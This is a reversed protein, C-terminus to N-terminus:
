DPRHATPAAAAARTGVAAAPQAPKPLSTMELRVDALSRSIQIVAPTAAPDTALWLDVKGKWRRGESDEVGRIAYHRTDITGAPLTRREPGRPVVDVPYVKEDSWIQLRRTREPPDRRISYIASVVDMVGQQTVEQNESKSRGRWTYSSWARIPQLRVPDIEAGYRWYDGGSEASTIVLQSTLHGNPESKFTLDGEGHNPLFLGVVAGIFNRLSWRYHFEENVSGGAAQALGAGPLALLAFLALPAAVRALRLKKM